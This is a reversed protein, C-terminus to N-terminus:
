NNETRGSPWVQDRIPELIKFVENLMDEDPPEEIAEINQRIQDPAGAGVVVTHIDPHATSFQLALRAIDVGQERCFRAAEACRDRIAVPAPHWDPPGPDALLRMSLPASSFVGINRAKLEPLLDTLSTNNLSYHCYSQITDVEAQEIVTQFSKLPYGTIGVFRAKGQEVVKRLAPLTEEIVQHLDGFEMDHAQIIDIHDVQLRQLSEDVCAITRDYSFDFDDQGYRGVKTALLFRDRPIQKLAKGMVTEALTLGYFPANDLLNIGHDIAEHVTQIGEAEDVPGFVSGLSSGGLSLVSVELGTKGLTRFKM